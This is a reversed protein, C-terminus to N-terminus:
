QEINVALKPIFRELLGDWVYESAVIEVHERCRDKFSSDSAMTLIAQVVDEIDGCSVTIGLGRADVQEAWSDGKSTIIPLGAWLYDLIRTRFAFRTEMSDRHLSIGADAELLYNGREAYSTWETNVFVTTDLLGLHRTETLFENVMNMKRSDPSPPVLGPFYVKIDDRISAIKELARLLTFPDFWDWIGGGWVLLFDTNKIKTGKLVSSNKVPKVAPLGFPLVIISDLKNRYGLLTLQGILFDKQKENAVLFGHGFRLILRQRINWLLLMTKKRLLESVNSTRSEIFEFIVPDYQDFVIQKRFLLSILIALPSGPLIICDTKRIWIFLNRLSTLGTFTIAGSTFGQEIHRSLLTAQFGRRELAHAMEWYRIGPGAMTTGIFDNCVFLIKQM